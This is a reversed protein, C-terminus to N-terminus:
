VLGHNIMGDGRQFYGLPVTNQFNTESIDLGFYRTDSGRGLIEYLHQGNGPGIELIRNRKSIKLASITHDIMAKNSDYMIHGLETGMKGKPCKLQEPLDLPDIFVTTAM